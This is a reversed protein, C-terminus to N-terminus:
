ATKNRIKLEFQVGKARSESGVAAFFGFDQWPIERLKDGADIQAGIQSREESVSNQKQKQKTTIHKTENKKILRM